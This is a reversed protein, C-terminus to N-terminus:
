VGRFEVYYFTRIIVRRHAWSRDAEPGEGGFGEFGGEWVGDGGAVAFRECFVREEEEAQGENGCDYASGEHQRGRRRQAVLPVITLVLLDRLLLPQTQPLVPPLHIHLVFVIHTQANSRPIPSSQHVDNSIAHASTVLSPGRSSPVVAPSVAAPRSRRRTPILFFPLTPKYM